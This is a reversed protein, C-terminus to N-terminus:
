PTTTDGQTKTLDEVIFISAMFCLVSGTVAVLLSLFGAHQLALYENQPHPEEHQYQYYLGNSVLTTLYPSGLDGVAHVVCAMIGFASGRRSPVVVGLCVDATVAWIMNLCFLGFFLVVYTAYEDTKMLYTVIFFLPTSTLVAVSCILPDGRPYKKKFHRSLLYAGLIGLCGSPCLILGLVTEERPHDSNPYTIKM